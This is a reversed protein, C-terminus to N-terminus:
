NSHKISITGTVCKDGCLWTSWNEVYGIIYKGYIGVAGIVSQPFM